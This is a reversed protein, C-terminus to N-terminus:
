RARRRGAALLQTKGIGARGHVVVLQAAGGATADVFASLSALEGERELLASAVGGVGPASGM